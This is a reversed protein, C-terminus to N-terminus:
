LHVHTKRRSFTPPYSRSLAPIAADVIADIWAPTRMGAGLALRGVGDCCPPARVGGSNDNRPTM